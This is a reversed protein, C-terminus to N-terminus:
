GAQDSEVIAAYTTMAGIRVGGSTDVGKLSDIKGIDVITGPAALRLKMAPILSHGGAM